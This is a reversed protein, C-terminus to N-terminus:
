APTHDCGSLRCDCPEERVSGRVNIALGAGVIGTVGAVPENEEEVAPPPVGVHGVSGGGDVDGPDGALVEVDQDGSEVFEHRHHLPSM